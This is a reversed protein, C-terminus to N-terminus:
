HLASSFAFLPPIGHQPVDPSCLSTANSTTEILGGNCGAGARLGVTLRWANIEDSVVVRVIVRSSLVMNM